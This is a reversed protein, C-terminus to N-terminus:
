HHFGIFHGLAKEEEKLKKNDTKLQQKKKNNNIKGLRVQCGFQLFFLKKTLSLGLGHLGLFIYHKNFFHIATTCTKGERCIHLTSNKM